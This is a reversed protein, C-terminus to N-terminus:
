RSGIRETTTSAPERDERLRRDFAADFVEEISDVLVFGVAERTEAPFGMVRTYGADGPPM